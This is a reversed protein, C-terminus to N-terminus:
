PLRMTSWKNSRRVKTAAHPTFAACCQTPWRSGVLCVPCSQNTGKVALLFSRAVLMFSLLVMQHEALRTSAMHGDAVPFSRCTAVMKVYRGVFGCSHPPFVCKANRRCILEVNFLGVDNILCKSYTAQKWLGPYQAFKLLDNLYPSFPV